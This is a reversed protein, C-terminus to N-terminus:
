RGRRRLRNLPDTETPVHDFEFPRLMPDRNPRLAVGLVMGVMFFNAVLSSGGYSVFPLTMGTIPLLGITMGINVIVQSLLIAAFGVCVLRGFSDRTLGAVLVMGFAMAAYICILLAGGIFGWRNAVVAFIMDNHDFPLRNFRVVVRSHSEGLGQFGGSGVLTQAKFSQYNISDAQRQDGKIQNILGQIREVQHKELLPYTPPDQGAASLSITAIIICTAAGLGGISFLHWLKAGAAMLIAFLAVPFLLTTGLDPEVLILISPLLIIAFPLLLGLLSRYNKRLRLYNALALVLAIKGLESPQLDTLYLNIWRRAGHRPRVISEPVIPILLFILLLIVAGAMPYSLRQWWRPHPIAAVIAGVLAVMFFALQRNHYFPADIPETLRIAALGILSLAIAAIVTLWAPNWWRLGIDVSTRAATTLNTPNVQHRDSWSSQARSSGIRPAIPDAIKSDDSNRPTHDGNM